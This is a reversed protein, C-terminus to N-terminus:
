GLSSKILGLAGFNGGGLRSSVPAWFRGSIRGGAPRGGSRVRITQAGRVGRVRRWARELAGWISVGARCGGGAEGPYRSGWIWRREGRERVGSQYVGWDRVSARSAGTRGLRVKGRASKRSDVKGMRMVRSMQLVECLGAGVWVGRGSDARVHM